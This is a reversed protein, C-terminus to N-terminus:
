TCTNLAKSVHKIFTKGCMYSWGWYLGLHQKGPLPWLVIVQGQLLTGQQSHVLLLLFPPWSLQLALHPPEWLRKDLNDRVFLRGLHLLLTGTFWLLGHSYWMIQWMILVTTCVYMYLLIQVKFNKFTRVSAATSIITTVHLNIIVMICVHVHVQADKIYM